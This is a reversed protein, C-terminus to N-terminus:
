MARSKRVFLPIGGGIAIAIEENSGVPIFRWLVPAGKGHDYLSVLKDYDVQTLIFHTGAYILTYTTKPM